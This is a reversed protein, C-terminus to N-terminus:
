KNNQSNQNKTGNKGTPPTTTPIPTGDLANTVQALLARADNAFPGSPALILYRQLDNQAAAFDGYENALVIARFFRADAYEPDLTVAHDLRARSQQVLSEVQDPADKVATEATLYLIRGAQAEAEANSPNRQLVEDYQELAGHFNGNAELFRALLLRSAQDDPNAAVARQLRDIRGAMSITASPTEQNTNGSSTEGAHRAGLAAALVVAAVVAFLVIGGITLLRRRNSVPAAVPRSDVGDRLARIVAAARATYDAHLREYSEDDITGKDRERELDDLSRLLFDRERELQDRFEDAAEPVDTMM